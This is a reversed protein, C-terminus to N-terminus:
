WFIEALTELALHFVMTCLPLQLGNICAFSQLEDFEQSKSCTPKHIFKTMLVTQRQIWSKLNGRGTYVTYSLYVDM